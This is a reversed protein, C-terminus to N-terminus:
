RKLDSKTKNRHCESCLIQCNSEIDEGGIYLPIVHDLEFGDPYSVIHNCLKCRPNIKWMNLRRNQLPRGTIRYSSVTLPKITHTLIPIKSKLTKLKAM